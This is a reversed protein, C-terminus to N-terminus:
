TTCVKGGLDHGLINDQGLINFWLLFLLWWICSWPTQGKSNLLQPDLLGGPFSINVHYTFQAFHGCGTAFIVKRSFGQVSTPGDNTKKLCNTCYKWAFEYHLAFCNFFGIYCLLGRSMFTYLHIWNNICISGWSSQVILVVYFEDGWFARVM